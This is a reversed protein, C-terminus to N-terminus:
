SRTYSKAGIRLEETQIIYGELADRQLLLGLPLLTLTRLRLLAAVRGLPSRACAIGTSRTTM